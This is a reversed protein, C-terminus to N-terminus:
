APASSAAKNTVFSAPFVHCSSAPSRRWSEPGFHCGPAPPRHRCVLPPGEQPEEGAFLVEGMIWGIGGQWLRDGRSFLRKQDNARDSSPLHSSLKRSSFVNVFQPKWRKRPKTFAGPLLSVLVCALM